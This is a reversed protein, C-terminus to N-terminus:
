EGKIKYVKDALPLDIQNEIVTCVTKDKIKDAVFGITTAVEVGNAMKESMSIDFGISIKLKGDDSKLFAKDIQGAYIDIKEAAAQKMSAITKPGIM